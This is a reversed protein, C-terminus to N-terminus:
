DGDGQEKTVMLVDLAEVEAGRVWLPNVEVAALGPGLAAAADALAAVAKAVAAVDVPVEGRAGRLLAAGRLEGLMREIEDAPVPLARLSVDGLIEIWVGGLGVALVPGFAPDIRVGAFLEIGKDRLPSVLVGEGDHDRGLAELRVFAARVAAEDALGLAVGGADSKHTLAAACVKLVVPYGLRDAAAVAAAASTVLEAPVVPVGFGAVFERAAAESWPGGRRVEVLAPGQGPSAVPRSRADSWALAHGVARIGLEIGGLVHLGHEALVGRAFPSVDTCVNTFHVIPKDTRRQAAAVGDMRRQLLSPDPPPAAPLAVANFIFDIGPDDILANLAVVGADSAAAKPDALVFGTIDLPNRVAAFSPLVAAIRDVTAPAFDPIEIDEDASRDAIIDCAGGSATVVGMRRGEPARVYGLLGATTLLEELSDVRVVGHQRLVAAVVADDGAVAGTHALAAAQGAPTRGVKLAVLPKGAALARDALAVFRAPDRISELFLAIVRTDEDGLLYEIVDAATVIAENGMSTLLSVGIARSRTFQMVASALAGSQLVIGVPGSQLPPVLHLGFPAAKAHSNVYGLCNPGLLTLDHDIAVDALRRERERGEDGIEAFGSALVIVNRIGAEAADDLVSEVADTPVMVFALDVPDDLDRLSAVTPEGFATPNRRHVPVLRGPLGATRLSEVIFRAWGSGESAGVLAVSSPAFLARLRDPAALRARALERDLNSDM